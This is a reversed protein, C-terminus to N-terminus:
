PILPPILFFLSLTPILTQLFKQLHQQHSTPILHPTQFFWMPTSQKLTYFPSPKPQLYPSLSPLLFPSMTLLLPPGLLPSTQLHRPQDLKRPSCSARGLSLFPSVQHHKPQPIFHLIIKLFLFCHSLFYLMELSASVVLPYIFVNTVMIYYVTDWFFVNFLTPNFNTLTRPGFIPGVPM